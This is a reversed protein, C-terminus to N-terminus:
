VEWSATEDRFYRDEDFEGPWRARMWAAEPPAPDLPLSAGHFRAALFPRALLEFGARRLAIGLHTMDFRGAFTMDALAGSARAADRRIVALRGSLASVERPSGYLDAAASPERIPPPPGAIAGHGAGLVEWGRLRDGRDGSLDPALAAVSRNAVGQELRELWGAGLTDCRGDIVVVWEHRAQRLAQALPSGSPTAASVIRLKIGRAALGEAVERCQQEDAELFLEGIRTGTRQLLSELCPAIREPPAARM